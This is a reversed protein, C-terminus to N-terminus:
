RWHMQWVRRTLVEPETQGPAYTRPHVAVAVKGDTMGPLPKAIRLCQLTYGAEVGTNVEVNKHAKHHKYTIRGLEAVGVLPLAGIGVAFGAASLIGMGRWDIAALQACRDLADHRAAALAYEHLRQGEKKIELGVPDEASLVTLQPDVTSVEPHAPMMFSPNPNLEQSMM